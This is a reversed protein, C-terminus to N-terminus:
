IGHMLVLRMLKASLRATVEAPSSPLCRLIRTESAVGREKNPAIWPANSQNNTGPQSTQNGSMMMSSTRLSRTFSMIWANSVPGFDDTPDSAISMADLWQRGPDCWTRAAFTETYVLGGTTPSLQGVQRGLARFAPSSLNRRHLRKSRPACLLIRGDISETLANDHESITAFNAISNLHLPTAALWSGRYVQDSHLGEDRPHRLVESDLFGVVSGERACKERIEAGIGVHQRHDL